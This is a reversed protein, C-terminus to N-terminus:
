TLESAHHPATALRGPQPGTITSAPSGYAVPWEPSRSRASGLDPSPTLQTVHGGIRDLDLIRIVGGNDEPIQRLLLAGFEQALLVLGHVSRMIRGPVSSQLPQQMGPPQRDDCRASDAIVVLELPDPVSGGM